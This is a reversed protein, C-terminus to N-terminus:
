AGFRELRESRVSRPGRAGPPLRWDELIIDARGVILRAYLRAISAKLVRGFDDDERAHGRERLATGTYEVFNVYRRNGRRVEFSMTYDSGGGKRESFDFSVRTFVHCTASEGDHSWVDHGGAEESRIQEAEITQALEMETM